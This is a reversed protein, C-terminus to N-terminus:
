IEEEIVKKFEKMDNPMFLAKSGYKNQFDKMYKRMVDTVSSPKNKMGEFLLIAKCDDGFYIASSLAAASTTTVFVKGDMKINLQILEWPVSSGKAIHVGLKEFRNEKCRPHRKILINDKGAIKVIEKIFEVDENNKEFYADGSEFFIFKEEYTDQLSNFEFVKNLVEILEKNDRNIKPASIVPYNFQTQVLDPEAFYYGKIYDDINAGNFVKHMISEIKRRSSGKIKGYERTYSVYSDEFRMCEIKPNRKRISNFICEPLAGNGSFLFLDYSLDDFHLNKLSYGTPNILTYGYIFYKPLKEKFSYKAGCRVLPTNLFYCNDFLGSERLRICINEANPTSAYLAIDAIADKYISTRLNTSEILQFFSDVAFLIRM